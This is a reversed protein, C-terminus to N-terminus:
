SQKEELLLARPMWRRELLAKHSAGLTFTEHHAIMQNIDSFATDGHPHPSPATHSAAVDDIGQNESVPHNLAGACRSQWTCLWRFWSVSLGGFCDGLETGM